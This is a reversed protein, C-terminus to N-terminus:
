SRSLELPLKQMSVKNCGDCLCESKVRLDYLRVYGKEECTMFENGDGPTTAVQFVSVCSNVYM